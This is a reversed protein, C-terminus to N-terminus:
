SLVHQPATSFRPGPKTHMQAQILCLKGGVLWLVLVVLAASSRQTFETSTKVILGGFPKSAPARLTQREGWAMSSVLSNLAFAPYYHAATLADELFGQM